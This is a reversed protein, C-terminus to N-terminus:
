DKQAEENQLSQRPRKGDSIPTSEDESDVVRKRMWSAFRSALVSMEEKETSESALIGRWDVFGELGASAVKTQRARKRDREKNEPWPNPM